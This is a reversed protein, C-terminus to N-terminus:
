LIKSSIIIDLEMMDCIDDDEMMDCIDNEIMSSLTCNM